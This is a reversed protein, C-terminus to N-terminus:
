SQLYARDKLFFSHKAARVSVGIFEEATFSIEDDFFTFLEHENPDGEVKVHVAAQVFMGGKAVRAETIVADGSLALNEAM